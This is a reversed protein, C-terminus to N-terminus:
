RDGERDELMKDILKDVKKDINDITQGRLMATSEIRGLRDVSDTQFLTDNAVHQEFDIGLKHIKKRSGNLAMISGGWAAGGSALATGVAVLAELSIDM